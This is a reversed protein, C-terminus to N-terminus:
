AMTWMVIARPHVTPGCNQSTMRMGDYGVSATNAYPVFATGQAGTCGESTRQAGLHRIKKM